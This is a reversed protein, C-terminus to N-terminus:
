IDINRKINWHKIELTQMDLVMIKNYNVNKSQTAIKIIESAMLLGGIGPVIGLVGTQACTDQMDNINHEPFACRLTASRLKNKYPFNFVGFQLQHKYVAASVLICNNNVTYDNILYRTKFNDSCDAIITNPLLYEHINNENIYVPISEAKIHQNLALLKEKAAETKNRGVDNQNYIVQRQLNNLQVTDGDILIIDGFGAAALYLLLSSGLGGAGIVYIKSAKLKLQGNLGIDSLVIQRAYRQKEDTTLEM